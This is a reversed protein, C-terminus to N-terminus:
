NRGRALEEKLMIYIADVLMSEDQSHVIRRRVVAGYRKIQINWCFLGDSDYAPAALVVFEEDGIIDPAPGFLKIPRDLSKIARGEENM